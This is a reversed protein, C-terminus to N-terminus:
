GRTMPRGTGPGNAWSWGGATSYILTAESSTPFADGLKWPSSSFPINIGSPSATVTGQPATWTSGPELLRDTVQLEPPPTDIMPGLSSSTTTAFMAIVHAAVTRIIEPSRCEVTLYCADHNYIRLSAWPLRDLLVRDPEQATTHDVMILEDVQEPRLEAEADAMAFDYHGIDRLFTSLDNRAISIMDKDGKTPNGRSAWGIDYALCAVGQDRAVGEM